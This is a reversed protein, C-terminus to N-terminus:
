PMVILKKDEVRFHIKSLELVKLLESLNTNRSLDATFYRKPITGSYVIEVDYWKKVQRMIAALDAIDRLAADPQFYLALRRALQPRAFAEHHRAAGHM